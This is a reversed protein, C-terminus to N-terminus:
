RRFINYNNKITNNSNTQILKKRSQRMIYSNNINELKEISLYINKFKNRM